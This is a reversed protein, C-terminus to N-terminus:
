ACPEHEPHLSLCAYSSPNTLSLRLSFSLRLSVWRIVLEKVVRSHSVLRGLLLTGATVLDDGVAADPM